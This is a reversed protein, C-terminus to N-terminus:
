ELQVKFNGEGIIVGSSDWATQGSLIILKGNLPTTVVQSYGYPQAAMIGKADEFTIKHKQAYITYCLIIATLPLIIKKM